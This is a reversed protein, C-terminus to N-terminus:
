EGEDLEIDDTEEMLREYASRPVPPPAEAPFRLREPRWNLAETDTTTVIVAHYSAGLEDLIKEIQDCVGATSDEDTQVHIALLRNDFLHGDDDLAAVFMGAKIMRLVLQEGMDRTVLPVWVYYAHDHVEFPM